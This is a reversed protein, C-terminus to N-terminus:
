SELEAEAYMDCNGGCFWNWGRHPHVIANVLWSGVFFVSVVCIHIIENSFGFFEHGGRLTLLDFLHDLLLYAM